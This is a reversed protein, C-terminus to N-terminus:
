PQENPPRRGDGFWERKNGPRRAIGDRSRGGLNSVFHELTCLATDIHLGLTRQRPIGSLKKAA